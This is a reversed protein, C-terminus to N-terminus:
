EISTVEIIADLTAKKVTSSPFKNCVEKMKKYTKQYESIEIKKGYHGIVIPNNNLVLSDLFGKTYGYYSHLLARRAKLGMEIMEKSYKKKYSSKKILKKYATYETSIKNLRKCTMAYSNNILLISIMFLARYFFKLM